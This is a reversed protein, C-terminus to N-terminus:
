KLGAVGLIVRTVGLGAAWAAYGAALMPVLRWGARAALWVVLIFLVTPGIAILMARTFQEMIARDGGAGAYVVWLALPVNIPMTALVAAATRSHARVVAVAIIILISVIVPGVSRWTESINM